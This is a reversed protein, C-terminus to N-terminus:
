PSVLRIWNVRVWDWGYRQWLNAAGGVRSSGLVLESLDTFTQNDVAGLVAWSMGDASVHFYWGGAALREIHLYVTDHIYWAVSRVGFADTGSVRRDTRILYAGSSDRIWTIAYYNTKAINQIRIGANENNATPVFRLCATVSFTGSADDALGFSQILSPSQTGSSFFYIHSPWTQDHDYPSLSGTLTWRPHLTPGEFEDDWQTGTPTHRNPIWASELFGMTGSAKFTGHQRSVAALKTISGLEGSGDMLAISGTVPPNGSGGVITIDARPGVLTATVGAGIFNLETASGLVAGEEEIVFSGTVPPNGAGGPITITARTGVLTATVGAGVLDFQTVSGLLSGDDLLVVTGTVPPIVYTEPLRQVM